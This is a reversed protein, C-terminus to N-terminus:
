RPAQEEAILYRQEARYVGARPDYVTSAYAASAYVIRVRAPMVNTRLATELYLPTDAFHARLADDARKIQARALDDQLRALQARAESDASVV